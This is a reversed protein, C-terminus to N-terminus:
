KKGGKSARIADLIKKAEPLDWCSKSKNVGIARVVYATLPGLPINYADIEAVISELTDAEAQQQSWGPLPAALLLAAALWRRWVSTSPTADM